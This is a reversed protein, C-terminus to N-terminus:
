WVGATACKAGAEDIGFSIGKIVLIRQEAKARAMAAPFEGPLVWHIATRDCGLPADQATLLAGSVAFLLATRYM